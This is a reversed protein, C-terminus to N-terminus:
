RIQRWSQRGMSGTCMEGQVNTLKQGNTGSNIVSVNTTSGCPGASSSSSSSSTSGSSSKPKGIGGIAFNQDGLYLEQNYIPKDIIHNNVYKDGVAPVEFLWSQGGSDCTKQSPILSTILLKDQVLLAKTTIREGKSTGAALDLDIYWGHKGTWPKTWTVVRSEAGTTYDTRLTQEQLTLRTEAAGGSGNDPVAYFSQKTNAFFNDNVDFYKGTGVYVMIKQLPTNYGLTPSATIPQDSNAAFVKYSNWNNPNSNTLNFRWINGSLDGSYVDTIRGYGDVLISPSTLGSGAGTDVVKVTKSSSNLQLMVLKSTVPSGSYAGNGFVAYWNGDQAPVIYIKGLVYGIQSPDSYEFLVTPSSPDTIDLGYIAKGGAGLSGVAITHWAGNMYIDSVAIAGDVMYQHPNTLNNGYDPKSLNVLKSFLISPIYAFKEKLVDSATVAPSAEANTNGVFGHVMGDNAGVLVLPIKKRKLTLYAPYDSGGVPLLNFSFDFYGAYTPGSNVIDGLINHYANITRERFKTVNDEDTADGRIWGIRAQSVSTQEGSITLATQQAPSLNSWAFSVTGANYTIINRGTGSTPMRGVDTTKYTPLAPLTGGADPKYALLQGTWLKSEFVAQYVFDSGTLRTSSTAVASASGDKQLISLFVNELSDELLSPNRVSFFNDPIGDAVGKYNDWDKVSDIKNNGNSDDFGGYKAAYYLPKKLMTTASDSTNASTFTILSSGVTAPIAAGLSYNVNGPRITWPSVIGGGFDQDIARVPNVLLNGREHSVGYISYSMRLANGAAAMAVTNSIQIKDDDIAPSCSAGVCFSIRQATDLDYDNGWLSDEWYFLFTGKVPRSLNTDNSYTLDEVKVDILSCGQWAPSTTDNTASGSTNAECSPIFSVTKTGTGTVIPISFTPVNEALDVAYTTLKQARAPDKSTYSRLDTTHAYYALGAINYSGELAPLEPCIGKFDSLKSLSTSKCFRSGNNTGGAFYNGSFSNNFELSGVEDTKALVSAAGTMGILDSASGLDDGDFSNVGTSLVIASCKACWEDNPWPDTGWTAKSLGAIGPYNGSVASDDVDFGDSPTIKGSIYRLMELYIESIPNGWDTCRTGAATHGSAPTGTKVEDITIGYTNCDSYNNSAYNYTGIRFSNINKIIGPIDNFVGTTYNIEDKASDTGHSIPGAAKRLVGGKLHAVHSGTTLSFNIAGDEGYKQLLGSPKYTSGYKRCRSSTAAEKGTVCAEVKVTLDKGSTPGPSVYQCQSPDSASWQPFNGEAIRLIPYGSSADASTSVNCFSWGKKGVSSDYKYPTFNNIDTGTYIKVFAHIDKPLYARELLTQTTSDVSRKGGFLVRRVIDMRSMTLWNLFNGSWAGTADPLNSGTGLCTHSNTGGALSNPTFYKDKEVSPITNYTYCWASDYYGYYNFNDRYTTDALSLPNGDLNSYDSYAKKFLENDVSM